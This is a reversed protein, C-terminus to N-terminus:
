LARLVEGAQIELTPIPLYGDSWLVPVLGNESKAASVVLEPDHWEAQAICGSSKLPNHISKKSTELPLERKDVEIIDDDEAGVPIIVDLVAALNKLAKGFEAEGDLGGFALEPLL